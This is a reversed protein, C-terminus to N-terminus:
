ASAQSSSLSTAREQTQGSSRYTCLLSAWLAALIVAGNLMHITTVHPNRHTELILIGLWIQFLVLVVPVGALAKAQWPSQDDRWLVIAHWAIGISAVIGLTRHLFHIWVAPSSSDPWWSGDAAAAPFTSIALAAGSHRMIAGFLISVAILVLTIWGAWRVKAPRSQSSPGSESRLWFPARLVTISTLLLLVVQAGIAHSIAFTQAIWNSETHINQTDLLVRLGGLLGQFIVLLVLAYALRRVEPRHEYFKFVVAILISLLGIVKGALRHSHEALQDPQRTWGEPNLSGDSLPWDLFAMGAGISTTFGGAFLLVGSWALAILCLIFPIASRSAAPHQPDKGFATM